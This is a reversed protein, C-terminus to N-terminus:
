SQPPLLSPSSVATPSSFDGTMASQEFTTPFDRGILLKLYAFTKPDMKPGAIVKEIMQHFQPGDNPGENFRMHVGDKLPVDREFLDQRLETAVM